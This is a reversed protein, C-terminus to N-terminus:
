DIKGGAAIIKTKASQSVSFGKFTLAKTLNGFGLIKASKQGLDKPTVIAGAKAFLADIRSLNFVSFKSQALLRHKGRLFPLRKIWSKKIKTGDFTIKTKGRVKDGKAGRGTTHGGKCSGIGRGRRKASKDKIPTLASLINM